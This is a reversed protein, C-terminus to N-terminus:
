LRHQVQSGSNSLEARWVQPQLLPLFICCTCHTSRGRIQFHNLKPLIIHNWFIWFALKWYKLFVCRGGFCFWFRGFSQQISANEVHNGNWHSAIQEKKSATTAPSFPNQIFSISSRYPLHTCDTKSATGHRCLIPSSCSWPFAYCGSNSCYIGQRVLHSWPM